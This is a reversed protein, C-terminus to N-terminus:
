QFMMWMYFTEGETGFEYFANNKECFTVISRTGFGHGKKASLPVGDKDFAIIGDFSNRVQLIFQPDTIAKVEIYRKAPEIKECAQIANELANAFATALETENVPLPNPFDLNTSVRIGKRKAWLELMAPVCDSSTARSYKSHIHLDAAYM